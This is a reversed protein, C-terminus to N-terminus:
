MEPLDDLGFWEWREIKHPELNQIKQNQPLRAKMFISIYHRDDEPFVDNTLAVFEFAEIKLGIEEEIERAACEEFSEGFELHGGPPGWSSKGHAAIRKGLLVQNHENFILVGLGVFPRKTM